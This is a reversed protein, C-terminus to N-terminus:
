QRGWSAIHKKVEGLGINKESSTFLADNVRAKGCIQRLEREAQRMASVSKWKDLKTFLVAHPLNNERLFALCELDSDLFGHRSDVVVFVGVLRQESTLWKTIERGWLERLKAAVKAYGYGPLDVFVVEGRPVLMGSRYFNMERTKGPSKSIRAIRSGTLKNILSSKGVNSRGAFALLPSHASIPLTEIQKAHLAGGIFEAQRM